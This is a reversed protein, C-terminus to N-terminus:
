SKWIFSRKLIRGLKDQQKQDPPAPPPSKGSVRAQDREDVRMVKPLNVLREFIARQTAKEDNEEIKVLM